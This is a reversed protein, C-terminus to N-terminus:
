RRLARQWYFIVGDKNIRPLPVPNKRGGSATSRWMLATRSDNSRGREIGSPAGRALRIILSGFHGGGGRVCNPLLLPLLFFPSVKELIKYLVKSQELSLLRRSRGNPDSARKGGGGGGGTSSTSHGNTDDDGGDAGCSKTRSRQGESSWDIQDDEDESCLLMDEDSLSLSVDDDSKMMTMM